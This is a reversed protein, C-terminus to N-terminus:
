IKEGVRLKASRARPNMRIEDERPRIVKKNILKLINKRSLERFITKVLRDELSHFAIVAIRGRPRLLSVAQPIAEQLYALEHNVAIRIAQFTRTAPHIREHRSARRSVARMVIDALEATTEIKKRKRAETIAHAIARAYREEGYEQLLRLLEKESLYKLLDRATATAEDQDYRMDLYEDRLFSFGRGTMNMHESSFGLDFLVGSVSDFEFRRATTAIKGFNACVFEGNELGGAAQEEKLRRILECDRDMGLLRGEHGVRELIARAHGGGNVTADIFRDGAKPSFASLVERLLVPTHM